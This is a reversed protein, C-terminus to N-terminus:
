ACQPGYLGLSRCTNYVDSLAWGLMHLQWAERLLVGRDPHLDKPKFFSFCAFYRSRYPEYVEFLGQEPVASHLASQTTSLSFGEEAAKSLVPGIVLTM